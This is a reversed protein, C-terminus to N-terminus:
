YVVEDLARDFIEDLQSGAIEFAADVFGDYVAFLVKGRWLLDCRM